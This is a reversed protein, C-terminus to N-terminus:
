RERHRKDHLAHPARGGPPQAPLQFQRVSVAGQRDATGLSHSGTDGGLIVVRKGAATIQNRV